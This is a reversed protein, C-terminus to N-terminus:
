WYELTKSEEEITLVKEKYQTIRENDEANEDANETFKKAAKKVEKTNGTVSTQKWWFITNKSLVWIYRPIKIELSWGM